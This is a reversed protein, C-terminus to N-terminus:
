GDERSEGYQNFGIQLTYILNKTIPDIKAM